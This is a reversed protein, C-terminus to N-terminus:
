NPDVTSSFFKIKHAPNNRIRRDMCSCFFKMHLCRRIALSVLPAAHSVHAVSLIHVTNYLSEKKIILIYNISEQVMSDNPGTLNQIVSANSKLRWDHSCCVVTKLLKFM